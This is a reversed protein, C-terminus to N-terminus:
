IQSLDVQLLNKLIFAVMLQASFAVVLGVLAYIIAKQAKEAKDSDGKSIIYNFGAMILYVVALLALLRVAYKILFYVFQPLTQFRTVNSSSLFEILSNFDDM